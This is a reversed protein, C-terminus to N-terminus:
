LMIGLLRGTVQDPPAPKPFFMDESELWPIMGLSFFWILTSLCGTSLRSKLRAHRRRFSISAIIPIRRYRDSLSAAVM